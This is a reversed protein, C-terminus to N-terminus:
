PVKKVLALREANAGPIQEVQHAPSVSRLKLTDKRYASVLPKGGGSLLAPITERGHHSEYSRTAQLGPFGSLMM